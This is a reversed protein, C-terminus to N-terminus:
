HHCRNCNSGDDVHPMPPQVGGPLHCQRCNMAPTHGPPKPQALAHSPTGSHCASCGAAQLPEHCSLCHTNRPSGFNGVHSRPQVEAHCQICTDPRHCTACTDRDLQATIGHGVRRWQNTHNAPMTTMHCSACDQEKHCLDCRDITAESGARCVGGHVRTWNGGHSPPKVDALITPHCDACGTAIGRAEHCATCDDMRTRPLELTDENRELAAHCASCELGAEVHKLHPFVIAAGVAGQATARFQKGDFLAEIKREAPKEADLEAHCLRCAGIGPMGPEDGSEAGLHCDTCGIELEIHARHSFAYARRVSKSGEFLMCGALAALMAVLATASAARRGPRQTLLEM